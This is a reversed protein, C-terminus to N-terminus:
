VVRLLDLYKRRVLMTESTQNRNFPTWVPVGSFVRMVRFFMSEDPVFRHFCGAPLMVCDGAHCHIRVWPQGPELEHRVDFYGSGEVFFRVEDDNHLHECYFTALKSRLDGMDRSDVFDRYDYGQQRCWQNLASDSDLHAACSYHELGVGLARLADATPAVFCAPNSSNSDNSTM